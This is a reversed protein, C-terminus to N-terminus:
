IFSHVFLLYTLKTLIPKKKIQRLLYNAFLLFNTNLNELIQFQLIPCLLFLSRFSVPDFFMNKAYSVKGGFFHYFKLYDQM